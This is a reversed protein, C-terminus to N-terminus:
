LKKKENEIVNLLDDISMANIDKKKASVPSANKIIDDIDPSTQRKPTYSPATTASHTKIPESKPLDATSMILTNDNEDAVPTKHLESSYKEAEATRRLMEGRLAEAVPATTSQGIVNKAAFATEASSQAKFQMTREKEKQYPSDTNVEKQSFNEAISMKKLEHENSGFTSEEPNFLPNSMAVPKPANEEENNEYNYFNFEDDDEDRKRFIAAIIMIVLLVCPVVLLAIIGKVNKVFSIYKGLTMNEKTCVGIINEKGISLETGQAKDTEPYYRLEGTETDAEVKYFMRVTVEDSGNLKCLVVDTNIDLTRKSIDDAIIAAGATVENGMDIGEQQTVIHVFKGFIKPTNSRSFLINVTLTSAILLVLLVIIVPKLISIGKKNEM